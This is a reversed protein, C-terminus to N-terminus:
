QHWAARALNTTITKGTLSAGAGLLNDVAWADVEAAKHHRGLRSQRLRDRARLTSYIKAALDPGFAPRVPAAGTSSPAKPVFAGLTDQVTHERDLALADSPARKATKESRTSSASTRIPIFGTSSARSNKQVAYDAFRTYLPIRPLYTMVIDVM